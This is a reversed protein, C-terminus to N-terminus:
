SDMSVLIPLGILGLTSTFLLLPGRVHYKDGIWACTGMVIAAAAYPPATLMQSEGVSFGMNDRLIIPLFYGLSYSQTTLSSYEDTPSMHQFFSPVRVLVVPCVDM